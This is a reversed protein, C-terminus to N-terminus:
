SVYVELYTNCSFEGNDVSMAIVPPMDWLSIREHVYVDIVGSAVPVMNEGVVYYLVYNAPVPHSLVSQGDLCLVAHHYGNDFKMYTTSGGILKIQSTQAHENDIWVESPYVNVVNENSVVTSRSQEETQLKWVQLGAFAVLALGVAVLAVIPLVMVPKAKLRERGRFGWQQRQPFRFGLMYLGGFIVAVLLTFQIIPSLAALFMLVVVVVLLIALLPAMNVLLSWQGKEGLREVETEGPIMGFMKILEERPHIDQEITWGASKFEDIMPALIKLTKADHIILKKAKEDLEVQHPTVFMWGYTVWEDKGGDLVVRAAIRKTWGPEGLDSTKIEKFKEPHTHYMEYWKGVHVRVFHDTRYVDPM